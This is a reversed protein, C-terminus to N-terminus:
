KSLRDIFYRIVRLDDGMEPHFTAAMVREQEVLVPAGEHTVLVRAQPGVKLIKPARIFVLPLLDKGLASDLPHGDSCFSDIQRGYANRQIHIDILGLSAQDPVVSSALLIAGACTGLVARGEQVFAHLADFFGYPAMLKLMATTEGGPMILADLGNLHAPLTVRRSTVGVAQLAQQHLEVNGQLALVGVLM